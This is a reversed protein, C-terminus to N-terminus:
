PLRDEVSCGNVECSGDDLADAKERMEVIADLSPRGTWALRREAWFDYAAGAISGLVPMNTWAYVWGMGLAEYVKRFVEIGSAVDGSPLVAHIRGMAQRFTVGGNEEPNYEPSAIDIFDVPSSKFAAARGRLAAVERLCLPCEGDYLLKIPQQSLEGFEKTWSDAAQPNNAIIETPANVAQAERSKAKAAALADAVRKQASSVRSSLTQVANARLVHRRSCPVASRGSVKQAAFSARSMTRVPVTTSFAIMTM